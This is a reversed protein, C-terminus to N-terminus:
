PILELVISDSIFFGKSNLIFKNNVFTAMKKSVIIDIYGLQTANLQYNFLKAVTNFDVGWKTRIRTFIYETLLEKTSLMEQSYQTAGNTISKVYKPNNSVNFHRSSGNFSHAGPGLGLYNKQHWYSSNHKSYKGPKSFNSVEYHEYGHATLFEVMYEYEKIVEDDEVPVLKGKKRWNGFVTKNEITLAYCSIHNPNLHLLEQLNLKWQAESQNPIGYMLDLSLNDIGYKNSLEVAQKTQEATHSRNLFHLVPNSFSQTGISLRNVGISAFYRIKEETLDDPNAELTFEISSNIKYHKYLARVIKDLHKGELISPTGGGFYITEIPEKLYGSMLKAELVIAEVINDLLNLTTSFHFDCYHCAKKCFPIHIYIGALLTSKTM